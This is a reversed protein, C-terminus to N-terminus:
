EKDKLEPLKMNPFVTAIFVVVSAGLMLYVGAKKEPCYAMYCSTYLVYTKFAYAVLVAGLFLNIRKAWLKPLLMLTVIVGIFILIFKGPRGYRNKESFFGTFDKQVDAHYTWPMFCTAILVAAAILGIWFIINNKKM